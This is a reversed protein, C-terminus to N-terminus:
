AGCLSDERVMRYMSVLQDGFRHAKNQVATLTIERFLNGIMSEKFLPFPVRKNTQSTSLSACGSQPFTFTSMRPYSAWYM